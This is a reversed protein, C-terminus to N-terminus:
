EGILYRTGDECRDFARERCGSGRYAALEGRERVGALDRRLVRLEAVFYVLEGRVVVRQVCSRDLIGVQALQEFQAGCIPRVRDGRVDDVISGFGRAFLDRDIAAPAVADLAIADDDPAGTEDAVDDVCARM